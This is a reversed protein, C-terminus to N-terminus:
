RRADLASRGIPPDGFILGTLDRHCLSRAAEIRARLANDYIPREGCREKGEAVRKKCGYAREAKRQEPTLRSRRIRSKVSAASRCLADAIEWQEAGDNLMARLRADEAATWNEQQKM